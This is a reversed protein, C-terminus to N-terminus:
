PKRSFFGACFKDFEVQLRERTTRLLLLEKLDKVDTTLIEDDLWRLTDRADNFYDFDSFSEESAKKMHRQIM